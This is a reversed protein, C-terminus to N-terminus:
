FINTCRLQMLHGRLSCDEVQSIHTKALINGCEEVLAKEVDAISALESMLVDMEEAQM